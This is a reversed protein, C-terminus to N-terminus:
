EADLRRLTGAVEFSECQLESTDEDAPGHVSARGTAHQALSDKTAELQFTTFVGTAFGNDFGMDCPAEPDASALAGDVRLAIHCRPGLAFLVESESTQELEVQLGIIEQPVSIGACVADLRGDSYIFSGVFADVNAEKTDGCGAVALALLAAGILRVGFGM